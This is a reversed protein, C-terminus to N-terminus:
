ILNLLFYFYPDFFDHSYHIVKGMTVCELQGDIKKAGIRDDESESATANSDYDRQGYKPVADSNRSQIRSSFSSVYGELCALPM